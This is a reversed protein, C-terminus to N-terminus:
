VALAIELVECCPRKENNKGVETGMEAAWDTTRTRKGLVTMLTDMENSNGGATKKAAAVMAELRTRLVAQTDENHYGRRRCLEHLQGYPLRGYDASGSVPARPPACNRNFSASAKM